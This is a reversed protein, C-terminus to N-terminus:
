APTPVGLRAGIAQRVLRMLERTDVVDPSAVNVPGSIDTWAHLFRVAPYLDEGHIWRHGVGRLQWGADYSGAADM